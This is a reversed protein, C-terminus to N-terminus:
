KKRLTLNYTISLEYWIFCPIGVQPKDPQEFLERIRQYSKCYNSSSPFKEVSIHKTVESVHESPFIGFIHSHFTLKEKM